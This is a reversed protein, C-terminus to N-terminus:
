PPEEGPLVWPVRDAQFELQVLPLEKLTKLCPASRPCLWFKFGEILEIPTFDGTNELTGVFHFWGAYCHRGPALQANHFVEGDKGSEIGLSDLLTLFEPPYAKERVAVFNRCPICSCTDSGGSDCLAYAAATAARDCTFNWQGLSAM